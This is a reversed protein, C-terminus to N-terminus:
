PHVSLFKNGAIYWQNNINVLVMQNTRLGDDFIVMAKDEEVEISVFQLEISTRTDQSRPMAVRGKEDVLSKIEEETLNRNEQLAKTQLAEFKLAGSKWWSYYAIKYDLYGFNKSSYDGTVSRIFDVTSSSLDGGRQDNVFISPFATLDFTRAAEAEIIYSKNITEQLLKADDTQPIGVYARSGSVLVPAIFVIVSLIVVPLIFHSYTKRKM